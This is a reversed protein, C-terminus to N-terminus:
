NRFIQIKAAHHIFFGDGVFAEDRFDGVIFQFDLYQCLTGARGTVGLTGTAHAFLGLLDEGHGPGFVSVECQVLFHVYPHGDPLAVLRSDQGIENGNDQKKGHEEGTKAKSQVFSERGEDANDRQYRIINDEIQPAILELLFEFVVNILVVPFAKTM